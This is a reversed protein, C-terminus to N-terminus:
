VYDEDADAALEASLAEVRSVAPISVRCWHCVVGLLATRRSSPSRSTPSTHRRRSCSAAHLLRVEGEKRQTLDDLVGDCVKIRANTANQRTFPGGYCGGALCSWMHKDNESM